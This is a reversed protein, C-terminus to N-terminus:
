TGADAQPQLKTQHNRVGIASAIGGIILLAATFALTRRFSDVTINQGIIVGIVAIAILGSIRAIANNVASAIGSNSREIDGLVASTLPAVTMSLGVSFVLIGPLLQTFFNVPAAISLMLMFGFGSLIPGSTMFWRPGYTGALKGFRPSLIFMIITVPLLSLGAHFASFGGVEQLFIVIIFTAISLAGYIALTAINGATFNRIKFLSLPLMANPTRREYFIFTVLLLLGLVLPLWIKTDSWGYNPQEILAYVTGFLGLSGLLAGWGDLERKTQIENTRLLYILWLCIAIPVVNIAFIWRWTFTDVLYGGFLPGIIFAIGTWATWTGIAKAQEAGKFHSIIIALSSPVLLAGFIGQLGRAIILFTDTPAIACLISAIGFGILGVSLIRKRGFIDSLSGALLILSGLTLLYADAIWQQIALGGGMDEVIKPLAVNVVSSDLFAVFSALISIVLVLRLNRRDM